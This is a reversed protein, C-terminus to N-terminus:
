QVIIKKTYFYNNNSIKLTYIGKDISLPLLFSAFEYEKEFVKTGLSNFIQIVQFTSNINGIVDINLENHCPNPYISYLENSNLKMIGTIESKPIDTNGKIVNNHEDKVGIIEGTTTSRIPIPCGFCSHFETIGEFGYKTSFVIQKSQDRGFHTNISCDYKNFFTSQFGSIYTRKFSTDKLDIDYTFTSYIEEQGDLPMIYYENPPLPEDFLVSFRCPAELISAIHSTYKFYLNNKFEFSKKSVDYTTRNYLMVVSDPLYSKVVVISDRYFIGDTKRLFVVGKKFNLFDTYKPTQIGKKISNNNVGAIKYLEINLLPNFLQPFPVFQVLGFTKSLKFSITDWASSIPINNKYAKTEYIKVSDVIGFIKQIEIRKFNFKISNYAYTSDNYLLAYWNSNNKPSFKLEGLNTKFTYNDYYPDSWFEKNALSGGLKTAQIGDVLYKYCNAGGGNWDTNFYLNRSAGAQSVYDLNIQDLHTGLNDSYVYNTIQKFKFPSWSKDFQANIVFPFLISIIFLSIFKHHNM